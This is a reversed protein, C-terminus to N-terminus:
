LGLTAKAIINRQVENSGGYVSAARNSLYDTMGMLAFAPAIQNHLQGNTRAQPLWPLADAGLAEVGFMDLDQQLETGMIKLQSSAPGTSQGQSLQSQVRFENAELADLRVRLTALRQDLDSDQLPLILQALRDCKERLRSAYAGGREFMLLTKAVSWGDNEAGVLETASVRVDEFFVQNVEHDGALTIIPRVSIGPLTMDILLFSIGKQSKVNVESRVLCFMMNAEHAMTTWIKTGNIIFDDGDRIARCSLSALDSGSGPESYGQCWFDDGSLIRPLYYERQADTGCVILTPGIMGLGMPALKPANERACESSFVYRQMETWGPGGFEKPWHPAVWGRAHLIKQWTMGAAYDSCIGISTRGAHRLEDSLNESLFDRVEERFLEISPDKDLNM